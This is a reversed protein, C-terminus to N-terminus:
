DDNNYVCVSDKAEDDKAVFLLVIRQLKTLGAL